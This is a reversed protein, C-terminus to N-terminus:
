GRINFLPAIYMAYWICPQELKSATGLIVDVTVMLSQNLAGELFGVNISYTDGREAGVLSTQEFGFEPNNAFIIIVFSSVIGNAVYNDLQSYHCAHM